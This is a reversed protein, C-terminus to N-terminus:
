PKPIGTRYYYKLNWNNIWQSPVELLPVFVHVWFSTLLYTSGLWGRVIGQTICRTTPGELLVSFCFAISLPSRLSTLPFILSFFLNLFSRIYHCHRGRARSYLDWPLSPLFIDVEGRIPSGSTLTPSFSNALLPSIFKGRGLSRILHIKLSVLETSSRLAYHSEGLILSRGKLKLLGDRLSFFLSDM